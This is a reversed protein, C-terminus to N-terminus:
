RDDPFVDRGYAGYDIETPSVRPDIKGTEIIRRYCITKDHACRSGGIAKRRMYEQRSLGYKQATKLEKIERAVPDENTLGYRNLEAYNLVRMHEPGIRLMTDALQENVNMERFYARLDELMKQFQGRLKEPSIDGKPVEYYPRHIGIKGQMDRSVAGVLVLVCASYCVARPEVQVFAQEKRLLRGIAMAALVSGGQTDLYVFPPDLEWKKVEAERQTRDVLLKLEVLDEDSIEGLISVHLECARISANCAPGYPAYTNELVTGRAGQHPAAALSSVLLLYLLSKTLPLVKSKM